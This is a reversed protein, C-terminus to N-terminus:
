RSSQHTLTLRLRPSRNGHRRESACPESASTIEYKFQQGCLGVSIFPIHLFMAYIFIVYLCCPTPSALIIITIIIGLGSM